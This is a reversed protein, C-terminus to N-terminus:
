EVAQTSQQRMMEKASNILGNSEFEADSLNTLIYALHLCMIQWVTVCVAELGTGLLASTGDQSAYTFDKSDATRRANEDELMGGSEDMVSINVTNLTERCVHGTEELNRMCDMELPQLAMQDCKTM